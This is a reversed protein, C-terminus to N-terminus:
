ITTKTYSAYFKIVAGTSAKAYLKGGAMVTHGSLPPTYTEGASLSKEKVVPNTAAGGSGEIYITVTRTVTDTNTATVKTIYWADNAGPSMYATATTTLMEDVIGPGTAM